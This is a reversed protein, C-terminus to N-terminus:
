TPQILDKRVQRKVIMEAIKGIGRYMPNVPVDIFYHADPSHWGRTKWYQYDAPSVRELESNAGRGGYFLVMDMIGPRRKATRLLGAAFIKAGKRLLNTNIEARYRPVVGNPTILGATGECEFGWAWAIKKMYKLVDGAGLIGTTVLFYAKKGFFRPRHGTYSIRDIFTKMLGTVNGSYVPSAFIVGDADLMKQEIVHVDDDRNPCKDEGQPFCVFCGKCPEIHADKLWVYEFEANCAKQLHERFEECARFTNGKRPSGMLVVIKM